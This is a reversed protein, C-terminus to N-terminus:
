YKVMFELMQVKVCSTPARPIEAHERVDDTDDGRRIILLLALASGRPNEEHASGARRLATVPACRALKLHRALLTCTTLGVTTSDFSHSISTKLSSFCVRFARTGKAVASRAVVSNAEGASASAPRLRSKPFMSSPKADANRNIKKESIPSLVNKMATNSASFCGCLATKTPVKPARAMMDKMETNRPSSRWRMSSPTCSKRGGAMASSGNSSKAAMASSTYKPIVVM